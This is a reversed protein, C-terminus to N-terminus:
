AVEEYLDAINSEFFKKASPRKLKFTPTLLGNEVSLLDDHLFVAKAQEFGHLKAEKAAAAMQEAVAKKLKKSKCAEKLTKASVGNAQCWPLVVEEDPVVIAVGM